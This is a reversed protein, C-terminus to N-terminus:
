VAGAETFFAFIRWWTRLNGAEERAGGLFWGAEVMRAGVQGQPLLRVAEVMRHFFGDPRM